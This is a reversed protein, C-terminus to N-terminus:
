LLDMHKIEARHFLFLGILLLLCAAALSYGLGALSHAGNGAGFVIARLEELIPAMPNLMCVTKLSDPLLAVSYFVPSVYKLLDMFVPMLGALDRYKATLSSFILGIGLAMTSVIFFLIPLLWFLSWCPTVPVGLLAFAVMTVTVLVFRMAFVILNTLIESLPVALRPFSIKQFIRAYAVFVNGTSRACSSFLYWVSSGVYYFLFYPVTGSQVGLIDGFVFASVLGEIVPMLILWLPGLITQKYKVTLNRKALLFILDKSKAADRISNLFTKSKNTYIIQGNM